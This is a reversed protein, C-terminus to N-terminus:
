NFERFNTKWVYTKIRLPGTSMPKRFPIAKSSSFSCSSSSCRDTFLPHPPPPLPPTSTHLGRFM